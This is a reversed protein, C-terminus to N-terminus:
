RKGYGDAGAAPNGYQIQGSVTDPSSGANGYVIGAPQGDVTHPVAGNLTADDVAVAQSDMVGGTGRSQQPGMSDDAQSFGSKPADM